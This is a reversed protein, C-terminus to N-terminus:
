GAVVRGSQGIQDASSRLATIRQLSIYSASYLVPRRPKNTGSEIRLHDFEGGDDCGAVYDQM